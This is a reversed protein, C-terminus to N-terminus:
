GCWGPTISCRMRFRTRSQKSDLPTRSYPWASRALVHCRRDSPVFPAGRWPPSADHKSQMQQHARVAATVGGLDSGEARRGPAQQPHVALVRRDKLSEM